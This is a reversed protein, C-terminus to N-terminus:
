EDVLADLIMASAPDERDLTPLFERMMHVTQIARKVVKWAEDGKSKKTFKIGAMGAAFTMRFIQREIATLKEEM